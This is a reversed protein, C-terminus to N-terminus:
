TNHITIGREPQKYSFEKGVKFFGEESVRKIKLYLGGQGTVNQIDVIEFKLNLCPSRMREKAHITGLDFQITRRVCKVQTTLQFLTRPKGQYNYGM